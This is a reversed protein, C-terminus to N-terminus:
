EKTITLVFPCLGYGNDTIRFQYSQGAELTVSELDSWSMDWVACNANSVSFHYTGAEEATFTVIDGNFFDDISAIDNEGLVINNKDGRTVPAEITLIFNRITNADNCTLLLTYEEGEALTVKVTQQVSYTDDYMGAGVVSSTFTYEGAVTATFTAEYGDWSEGDTLEIDNEGVILDTKDGRPIISEFDVNLVNKYYEKEAYVIFTAEEEPALIISVSTNPGVSVKGYHLTYDGTTFTYIGNETATFTMEAGNMAEAATLPFLNEGVKLNERDDIIYQDVIIKFTVTETEALAESQLTCNFSSPSYGNADAYDDVYQKFEGNVYGFIPGYIPMYYEDSGIVGVYAIKNATFSTEDFTVKFSDDNTAIFSLEVGAALDAALVTIVNEGVKLPELVPKTDTDVTVTVASETANRFEVVVTQGATLRFTATHYEFVTVPVYDDLKENYVYHEVETATVELEVGDVFVKVNEDMTFYPYQYAYYDSGTLTYFKSANAELVVTEEYLMGYEIVIPNTASDGPLEAEEYALTIQAPLAKKGNYSVSATPDEENTFENVVGIELTVVDGKALLMDISQAYNYYNAGSISEYYEVDGTVSESVFRIYTICSAPVSFTYKGSKDATFTTTVTKEITEEEESISSYHVGEVLNSEPVSEFAWAGWGYNADPDFETPVLYNGPVDPDEELNGYYFEEYEGMWDVLTTSVLGNSVYHKITTVTPTLVYFTATKGVEVKASNIMDNVVLEHDCVSCTRTTTGATPDLEDIWTHAERTVTVDDCECDKTLAYWHETSNSSYETEFHSKIPSAVEHSSEGVKEGDVYVTATYTLTGAAACTATDVPEGYEIVALEALQCGYVEHTISNQSECTASVTVKGDDTWNYTIADESFTHGLAPVEADMSFNCKSCTVTETGPTTCTAATEHSMEFSHNEKVDGLQHQADNIAQYTPEGGLLDDCATLSLCATCASALVVLALVKSRTKM